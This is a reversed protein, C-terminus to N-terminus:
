NGNEAQGPSDPSTQDGQQINDTDPGSSEREEAQGPRDPSTQDGQQISDTDTKTSEAQQTIPPQSAPAGNNATSQQAFGLGGMTLVAPVALIAMIKRKDM